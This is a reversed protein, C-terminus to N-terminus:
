PYLPNCSPVPSLAQAVVTEPANGTQTVTSIYTCGSALLQDESPPLVEAVLLYDQGVPLSFTFPQGGSSTLQNGDATFVAPTHQSGDSLVVPVMASKAVMTDLCTATLMSCTYTSGDKLVSIQVAGIQSPNLGQITIGLGIGQGNDCGAALSAAIALWASRSAAKGARCRTPSRM